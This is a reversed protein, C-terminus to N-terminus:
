RESSVKVSKGGDSTLIITGNLDTRYIKIDSKELRNMVTKSPHNYDNDKGVCIIAIKPNVAQLFKASTSSSSGHHGIKLVDSSLTLGSLLMEDENVKEADGTFLFSQDKYVLRLVISAENLDESTEKTCSLITFSADGLEYVDGVNPSTVTLKKDSIIDLVDEFTRTAASVKPMLIKDINFASIVNDLGGIHDEHPHTGVLYDISSINQKNLYDVVLEGDDNNGADILMSSGNLTILISDAQGVDIFHIKLDGSLSENNKEENQSVDQTNSEDLSITSDQSSVMPSIYTKFILICVFILAIVLGSNIKKGKAM